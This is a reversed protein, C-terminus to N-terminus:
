DSYWIRACKVDRFRTKQPTTKVSLPPLSHAARNSVSRSRSHSDM